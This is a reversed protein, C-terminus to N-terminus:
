VIFKQIKRDFVRIGALQYRSWGSGNRSLKKDEEKRGICAISTNLIAAIGSENTATMLQNSLFLRPIVHEHRLDKTYAAKKTIGSAQLKQWFNYTGESIYRQNLYKYDATNSIETVSWLALDIIKDAAHQAISKQHPPASHLNNIVNLLLPTYTSVTVAREIKLSLFTAPNM